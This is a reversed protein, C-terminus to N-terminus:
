SYNFTLKPDRQELKCRDMVTLLPDSYSSAIKNEKDKVDRRFNAAQQRDRAIDGSSRISGIGGKEELLLGVTVKPTSTQVLEKLRVKTSATSPKFPPDQLPLIPVPISRNKYQSFSIQTAPVTIQGGPIPFPTRLFPFPISTIRTSEWNKWTKLIKFYM